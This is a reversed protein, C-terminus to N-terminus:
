RRGRGSMVSRLANYTVKEMRHELDLRDELDPVVEWTHQFTINPGSMGAGVGMLGMNRIVNSQQRPNLVVEGQHLIYKATKFVVGGRQFMGEVDSNPPTYDPPQNLAPIDSNPNDNPSNPVDQNGANAIWKIVDKAKDIVDEFAEIVKSFISGWNHNEVWDVIAKRLNELANEAGDKIDEFRQVVDARLLDFTLAADEKVRNFWSVLSAWLDGAANKVATTVNEWTRAVNDTFEIWGNYAKDKFNTWATTLDDLLVFWANVFILFTSKLEEPLFSWISQIVLVATQWPDKLSDCFSVWATYIKTLVGQRWNELATDTEKIWNDWAEKIKSNIWDVIKEPRNQLTDFLNWINDWAKKFDDSRSVLDGLKQKLIDFHGQLKELEPGAISKLWDKTKEKLAEFNSALGTALGGINKDFFGREGLGKDAGAAKAAQTAAQAAAQYQQQMLKMRQEELKLLDNINQKQKNLEDRQKRLADIREREGDILERLPDIQARINDVLKRQEEVIAQAAEVRVRAAQIQLNVNEREQELRLQTIDFERKRGRTFREPIGSTQLEFAKVQLQLANIQNDIAQAAKEYADVQANAADVAEEAAKVQAEQAKAAREIDKIQREYGKIGAEISDIQSDIADIANNINQLESTLQLIRTISEALGGFDAQVAALTDSTIQGFEQIELGARYVLASFADIYEDVQQEAIQKTAVGYRLAAEVTSMITNLPGLDFGTRFGNLYEQAATKGQTFIGALSGLNPLARNLLGSTDGGFYDNLSPAKGLAAAVRQSVGQAAKAAEAGGKEIGESWAEVVAQGGTDIESLPGVPPPSQGITFSAIISVIQSIADIVAIAGQVLGDAYSIMLKAGAEAMDNQWDPSKLFGVNDAIVKILDRIGSGMGEGMVAFFARLREAGTNGDIETLFLKDFADAAPSLFGEFLDTFFAERLQSFLDSTNQMIARFRRNMADLSGGFKTDLYTKLKTLIEETSGIAEGSKEFEIGAERVNIGAQRLARLGIGTAGAAINAFAHTVSRVSDGMNDLDHATIAATNQVTGLWNSFDLGAATLQKIAILSDQFQIFPAKLATRRAFEVADGSSAAVAEGGGVKGSNSFLVDLQTKATQVNDIIEFSGAVFDKLQNLFDGFKGVLAEVGQLLGGGVFVGMATNGWSSISVENLRFANTLRGTDGMISGIVNQVLSAPRSTNAAAVAQQQQLNALRLQAAQAQAQARAANQSQIQQAYNARAQAYAAQAQAQQIRAQQIQPNSAGNAQAQQVRLQAMQADAQAKQVRAAQIAAQSRVREMAGAASENEALRVQKAATAAERAQRTYETWVKARGSSRAMNELRTNFEQLSGSSSQIYSLASKLSSQFTPDIEGAIKILLRLDHRSPAAM